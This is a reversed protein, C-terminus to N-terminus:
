NHTDKTTIIVTNQIRKAFGLSDSKISLNRNALIIMMVKLIYFLPVNNQERVHFSEELHDSFNQILFLQSYRVVPHLLAGPNRDELQLFSLIICYLRDKKKSDCSSTTHSKKYATLVLCTMMDGHGERGKERVIRGREHKGRGIIKPKHGTMKKGV